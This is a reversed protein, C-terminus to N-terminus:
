TQGLIAFPGVKVKNSIKAGEDIVSTKHIM